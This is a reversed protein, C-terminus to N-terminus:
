DRKLGVEVIDSEEDESATNKGSAGSASPTSHAVKMPSPSDLDPSVLGGAHPSGGPSESRNKYKQLSVM